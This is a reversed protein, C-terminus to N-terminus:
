AQGLKKARDVAIDCMAESASRVEEEMTAEKIRRKMDDMVVERSRGNVFVVYRLGPFAAEYEENLKELQARETENGLSKQESQSQESDVKKAGLRPHASLISLLVPSDSPLSLLTQRTLNSLDTYTSIATSRIKPIILSTLAESPEFLLNLIQAITGDPLSHLSAAPPLSMVCTASFFNFDKLPAVRTRKQIFIKQRLLNPIASLLAENQATRANVQLSHFQLTSLPALRIGKNGKDHHSQASRTPLNSVFRTLRPV